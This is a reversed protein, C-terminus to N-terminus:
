AASSLDEVGEEFCHAAPFGMSLALLLLSLFNLSGDLFLGVHPLTLSLSCSAHFYAPLTFM